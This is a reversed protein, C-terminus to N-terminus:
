LIAHARDRNKRMAPSLPKCDRTIRNIADAPIHVMILWTM